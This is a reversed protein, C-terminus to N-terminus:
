QRLLIGRRDLDLRLFQGAVSKMSIPSPPLMPSDVPASPATSTSVSYAGSLALIRAATRAAPPLSTLYTM